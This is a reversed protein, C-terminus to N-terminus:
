NFTEDLYGEELQLRELQDVTSEIHKEKIEKFAEQLQKKLKNKDFGIVMTMWGNKTQTWKNNKRKILDSVNFLGNEFITVEEIRLDAWVGMSKDEFDLWLEAIFVKGNKFPMKELYRKLQDIELNTM